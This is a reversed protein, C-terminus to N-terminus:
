AGIRTGLPPFGAQSSPTCSPAVRVAGKVRVKENLGIRTYTVYAAHTM